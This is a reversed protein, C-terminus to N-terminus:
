SPQTHTTARRMKMENRVIRFTTTTKRIHWCVETIMLRRDGGVNFKKKILFIFFYFDIKKKEMFCHGKQTKFNGYKGHGIYIYINYGTTLNWM